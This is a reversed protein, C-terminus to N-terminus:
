FKHIVGVNLLFFYSIGTLYFVKNNPKLINYVIIACIVFSLNFWTYVVSYSGILDFTSFVYVVICFIYLSCFQFSFLDTGLVFVLGRM